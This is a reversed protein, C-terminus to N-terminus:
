LSTSKVLTTPSKVLTMMDTVESGCMKDKLDTIALREIGETINAVEESTSLITIKPLVLSSESSRLTPPLISSPTSIPSPPIISAPTKLDIRSSSAPIWNMRPSYGLGEGSPVQPPFSRFFEYLLLFLIVGYLTLTFWDTKKDPETRICEEIVDELGSGSLFRYLCTIVILFLYWKIVIVWM